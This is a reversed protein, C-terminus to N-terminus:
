KWPALSCSAELASRDCAGGFSLTNIPEDIFYAHYSWRYLLVVLIYYIYFLADILKRRQGPKGKGTTLRAKGKDWTLWTTRSRPGESAICSGKCSTRTTTFMKLTLSSPILPVPFSSIIGAWSFRRLKSSIGRKWSIWAPTTSPWSSISSQSSSSSSFSFSKLKTSLICTELTYWTPQIAAYSGINTIISIYSIIELIRLWWDISNSKVPLSRKKLFIVDFKSAHLRVLGSLFMM